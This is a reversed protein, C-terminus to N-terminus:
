TFFDYKVGPHERCFGYAKLYGTGTPREWIKEGTKM